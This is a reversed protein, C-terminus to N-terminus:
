RGRSRRSGRGHERRLDAGSVCQRTRRRAIRSQRPGRRRSGQQQSHAVVGLTKCEDLARFSISLWPVRWGNRRQARQGEAKVLFECLIVVAPLLPAIAQTGAGRETLVGVVIFIGHQAASLVPQAIASTACLCSTTLVMETFALTGRPQRQLSAATELHNALILASSLHLDTVPQNVCASASQWCLDWASTCIEGLGTGRSPHVAEGGLLPPPRRVPRSPAALRLARRWQSQCPFQFYSFLM